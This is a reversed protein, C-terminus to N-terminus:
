NWVWSVRYQGYTPGYGLLVARITFGVGPVINTCTVQIGEVVHEDVTHDTTAGQTPDIWAEVLSGGSIAGQGTIVVTADYSPFAGFDIVTSGQTGM